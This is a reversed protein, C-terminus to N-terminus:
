GKLIFYAAKFMAYRCKAVLHTATDPTIGDASHVSEADSDEGDVEDEVDDPGM